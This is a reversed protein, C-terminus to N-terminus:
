LTMKYFSFGSFFNVKENSVKTTTNNINVIAMLYLFSLALCLGLVSFINSVNLLMGAIIPSLILPLSDIVIYTGYYCNFQEKRACCSILTTLTLTLLCECLGIVFVITYAMSSAFELFYNLMVTFLFYALMAVIGCGVLINKKNYKFM